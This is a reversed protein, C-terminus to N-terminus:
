EERLVELPRRLLARASAAVGAAAALAATGGLAVAFLGPHLHWELEMGRTIVVWALVGGGAAGVLGAALGVATHEVAFIAAVGARTFGLTKRLAVERGRRAAAASVAGALIAVGALVTFGGLFSVALGIRDLIGVIKALLERLRIVTVNPFRAALLDQVRQERGPPLRVTALRQQPADELVGPEVVLFFNIGFTRWDVSRLSTVWLEIPVGQVDFTLRSGLGVGLDHAYDEELSVEPRDPDSWLAGAVVRNDAPLRRMYTLRQERTLAWNRSREREGGGEDRRTTPEPAARRRVREEVPRGDIARLRAMVVPVSDIGEGGQDALLARVGPWQDPQVDVLFATPADAPVDAALADTLHRQVLAMALVVLTGLGLAM